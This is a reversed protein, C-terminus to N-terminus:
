PHGESRDAASVRRGSYSGRAVAAAILSPVWTTARGSMRDRRFRLETRMMERLEARLAPRPEGRHTELLGLVYGHGEFYRRLYAVTQRERPMVHEVVSEPVWQGAHGESLISRISEIEEGGVLWRGPRRGLTTDFPFRRQLAADMAFNAGYPFNNSALEIPGRLAQRTAFASECLPFTEGLWAPPGGEFVPIISGGFLKVHPFATFAREYARLWDAHVRVDDDTFVVFQGHARQAAVNRALSAGARSEEIVTIPLRGRHADLVQLTDDTCASAGVIIELEHEAPRTAAAMSLLTQDLLRARNHTCIVVTLTPRYPAPAM